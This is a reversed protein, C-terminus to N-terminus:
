KVVFTVRDLGTNGNGPNFGYVIAQYAGKKNPRFKGSFQSTEGAFDLPFEDVKENDRLVVARVEYQNSDWLGDPTIPCGCMPTVNAKFSIENKGSLKTHAAPDRVDVVLGPLEMCFADGGTIHKGPVVWQTASVRNASQKQAMPGYATIEAYVPRDIDLTTTFHASTEDSVAMGRERPTKMILDTNGTSGLTLGKALLEGTHEDKITVLAGGMSTGVFKAGKSKVRVTVDTPEAYANLSIAIVALLALLISKGKM